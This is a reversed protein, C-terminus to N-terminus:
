AVAGAPQPLELRLREESAMHRLRITRHYFGDTPKTRTINVVTSAGLEKKFLQYMLRRHEEALAAGVDDLVVYTPKHLLLRAFVLRQQQDLSLSKDWREEEDLLPILHDLQVRELVGKVRDDDFADPPKPYTVAARISGLPLYPRQPLFLVGGQAPMRLKGTGWPWLGALARFLSSKGSGPDGVIALHEGPKVAVNDEDLVARGNTLLVQLNEMELASDQCESREIRPAGEGMTELKQLSDRYATVRLLTARWDAIRPFNDVFWRLANQVHNFAGVVMMLGGFSLTGQFYGPAAVLIPVILALWGYGSTIWTLRALGNALQRTIDIVRTVPANLARREDDEGRYLSIGEASESIRVLGFRLDAERAYREANIAILPRGVLWTLWSGSLAYALACWVLYGPITFGPAGDISFVVQSSLGWLVGIFSLLLLTSRLLGIALDAGFETLRQCDAQMRQDPNDGIEGAFGLLYARKPSLWQDLLDHTLWERLRVELMERIWTEAVVLTLLVAVILIFVGIETIFASANAQELANYFDGKWNNLRVQGVMNLGIAFVIGGSLLWIRFRHPSTALARWLTRLQHFISDDHAPPTKSQEANPTVAGKAAEMVAM